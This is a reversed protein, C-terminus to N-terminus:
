QLKLIRVVNPVDLLGFMEHGKMDYSLLRGDSM